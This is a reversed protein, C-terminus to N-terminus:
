KKIIEKFMSTDLAIFINDKVKEIEEKTLKTKKLFYNRMDRKTRNNKYGIRPAIVEEGRTFIIIPINKEKIREGILEWWLNDTDGLSTGFISIFDAQKIKTKFHNDITHGYALNCEQKVIAELVDVNQHFAKNKLQSIDNVGLVMRDDVYGHIHEVRRLTVKGPNAIHHGIQINKNNEVIKEIIRTYNFTVIDVNWTNNTFNSKYTRIKNNDAVPLFVEPKVLNEFFKAKNIEALEFKSEEKILYEALQEGIDEFVEDFDDVTKFEETYQGLALELDSWNKYNNSINTKLNNISNNSSEISKYYDYFDKYSTKLGLNLDFGNGFIHLIKM